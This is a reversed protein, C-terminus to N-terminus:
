ANMPKSSTTFSLVRDKAGRFLSPPGTRVRFRSTSSSSKLARRVVMPCTSSTATYPHLALSLFSTTAFDATPSSRWIPPEADPGAAVRFAKLPVPPVATSVGALDLRRETVPAGALLWGRADEMTQQRSM